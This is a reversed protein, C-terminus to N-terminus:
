SGSWGCQRGENQIKLWANLPAFYDIIASADMQRQGTLAEM